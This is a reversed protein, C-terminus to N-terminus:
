IGDSPVELTYKTKATFAKKDAEAKTLGNKVYFKAHKKAQRKCSRLTNGSGEGVLRPYVAPHSRILHVKWTWYVDGIGGMEQEISVRFKM